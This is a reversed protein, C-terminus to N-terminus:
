HPFSVNLAVGSLKSQKLGWPKDRLSERKEKGLEFSLNVPVERQLFLHGSVQSAKSDSEM